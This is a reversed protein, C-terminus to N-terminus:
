ELAVRILSDLYYTFHENNSDTELRVGRQEFISIVSHLCEHALISYWYPLNYKKMKPIMILQRYKGLITKGGSNDISVDGKEAKYFKYTQKYHKKLIKIVEEDNKVNLLFVYQVDYTNDYYYKHKLKRM